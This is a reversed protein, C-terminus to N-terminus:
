LSILLRVRRNTMRVSEMNEVDFSYDGDSYDDDEFNKLIDKVNQFLIDNGKSKHAQPLKVKKIRKKGKNPGKKITIEVKEEIKRELQIKESTLWKRMSRIGNRLQQTLNCKAYGRRGPMGKRVVKLNKELTNISMNLGLMEVAHDM